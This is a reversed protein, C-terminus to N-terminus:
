DLSFPPYEDTLLMAYANVRNGLRMAKVVFDRMGQPWAGTILVAFFAIFMVIEAAFMIVGSFIFAPIAVIIRLLVTLRNRGDWAIDFDVMLPTGGPESAQMDFTFPPYEEHLFAMFTGARASYRLYMATFNGLGTPLKGTFIIALWSILGVIGGVLMLVYLVVFHPIAMLWHVLPRWRAVQLPAELEYTAPYTM